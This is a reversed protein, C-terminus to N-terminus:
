YNILFYVLAMSLVIALYFILLTTSFFCKVWKTKKDILHNTQMNFDVIPDVRVKDYLKRYLREKHLYFSDLLWFSLVPIFSILLVGKSQEKVSWALIGTAITVSWRKLTSSNSSMREVLNMIFELHKHKDEMM